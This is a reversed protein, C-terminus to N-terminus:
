LAGGPALWEFGPLNRVIGFLVLAGIWWRGDFAIRQVATPMVTRGTMGQLSMLALLPLSLVVLTNMAIARWLDFHVLAHLARTVGCGPCFLGTLEHFPCPPFLSGAANPDFTRLLLVLVCAAALALASALYTRTAIM